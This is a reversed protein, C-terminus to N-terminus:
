SYSIFYLHFFREEYRHKIAFSICKACFTGQRNKFGATHLYGVVTFLESIYMKNGFVQEKIHCRMTYSKAAISFGFCAFSTWQFKCKQFNRYASHQLVVVRVHMYENFRCLSSRSSLCNRSYRLATSMMLTMILEVTSETNYQVSDMPIKLFHLKWHVCEAHKPM